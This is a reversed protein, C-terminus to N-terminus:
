YKVLPLEFWFTSGEGETSEFGIKGNMAEIIRKTITLGIGTGEIVTMEKGLRTFATFIQAQKEKPIGLGTDAVMIRLYNNDTKSCSLTISGDQKNYKIANTTLNFIVQKFLIRDAKIVANPNSKLNITVAMKEAQSELLPLCEAVIESPNVEEISANLEGLEITSLQLVQNILDLLHEGGQQIFAISQQQTLDLPRNPDTKLLESFGLISNLPTRLEHSMSTLFETKARNAKEAVEKAVSANMSAKLFAVLLLFLILTIIFLYGRQLWLNNPFSEWGQTPRATLIWEGNPLKLTAKINVPSFLEASGFFVEGTKGLGDKGRIAVEIPLDEALLGSNKYLLNADIVASTIGWFSEEGAINKLFVPIRSIIGTGGQVLELPGALVLQRSEVAKIVADVQNPLTRYDLGIAKENGEVPYMYKIVLNPAAAINRLETHEDFLQRIAIEFQQQSLDPNVIFLAPLGNLAQINKYLNFTLRSTITNLQSKVHEQSTVIHRDVISRDIYFLAALLIAAIIAMVSFFKIPTNIM